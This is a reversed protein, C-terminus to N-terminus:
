KLSYTGGRVGRGRENQRLMNQRGQIIRDHRDEGRGHSVIQVEMVDVFVDVARIPM